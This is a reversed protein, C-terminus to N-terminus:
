YGNLIVNAILGTAVAMLVFNGDAYVWRYGRPPARLGYYGWDQVYYGRYAAPVYGGRHWGYHSVPRYGYGPAYWYGSRQGRFDRWESRDRWSEARARDFHLDRRDQNIERHDRDLEHREGPGIRGDREARNRDQRLDHRDEHLERRDDRREDPHATAAMPAAITALAVAAYLLHKM